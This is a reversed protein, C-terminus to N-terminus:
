GEELVGDADIVADIVLGAPTITVGSLRWPDDPGPELIVLPGGGLVDPLVLAGDDVGLPIEARQGFLGLAVGGDILEISDVAVGAEAFASGVLAMGATSDLTAVADVAGSLGSLDIADILITTGDFTPVDVASLNGDIDTFTRDDTSVGRVTVNLRGIRPGDADLDEGTVHIRDIRGQLLGIASVDAEVDIEQDGFPSAARVADVVMPAAVIPVVAIAAVILVAAVLLVFGLINRVPRSM